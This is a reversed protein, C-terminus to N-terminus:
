LTDVCGSATGSKERTEKKLGNLQELLREVTELEGATLLHRNTSIRYDISLLQLRPRQRDNLRGVFRHLIEMEHLGRDYRGLVLSVYLLQYNSIGRKRKIHFARDM